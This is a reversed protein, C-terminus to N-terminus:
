NTVGLKEDMCIECVAFLMRQRRVNCIAKPFIKALLMGYYAAIKTLMDISLNYVGNEINCLTSKSMNLDGAVAQLSYNKAIRQERFVKGIHRKVASSDATVNATVDGAKFLVELLRKKQKGFQLIHNAEAPACYSNMRM